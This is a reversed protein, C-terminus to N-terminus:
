KKREKKRCIASDLQFCSDSCPNTYTLFIRKQFYLKLTYIIVFTVYVYIHFIRETLTTKTVKTIM